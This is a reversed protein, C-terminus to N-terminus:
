TWSPIEGKMQQKRYANSFRHAEDRLKVLLKDAQDYELPIEIINFDEDFRYIKEGVLDLMNRRSQKGISSRKRAEGKGLSVFDVKEFISRFSPNQDYLKKVVWLQGKGGDLIFLDPFIKEEGKSSTLFRRELIELLSAYDDSDGVVSRIKYKRYGKKEPLGGIMCSLGGSIWSGSLHSIDVCEMRYPFNQLQYKKQLVSLLDNYFNEGEFSSVILYSDFFNNMMEQLAKQESILIHLGKSQAILSHEDQSIIKMEGLELEFWALMWHFDWEEVSIKDRIVDILRGEFFHLVVFVNQNSITRMELIHGSINKPLEVHQREVFQEIHTYIDRLNAAWEFHQLEVAGSIQNLIEKKIQSVDGKFFSILQKMTIDYLKQVEEPSLKTELNAVPCGACWGKCLKLYYDSCLVGKNFQVNGCTRFQLIYRLYQLLKRLERSNHKPWIYVAKDNKKMRTLLVQPYSHHTLKIYTYGNGWKLMNNYFPKYKKILNSELYLSESETKVILFDVSDAKKLMEQKRLSGPAFYQSVRKKLNKAKGIYLITGELDKFFYVGPDSPLHSLDIQMFYSIMFSFLM